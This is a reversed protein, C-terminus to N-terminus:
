VTKGGHRKPRTKNYRDKVLIAEELNIEYREALDMIRIVADALEFIFGIPKEGYGEEPFENILPNEEDRYAELAESIESHILCLKTPINRDSVRDWFGKDKATKHVMTQLEKFNM